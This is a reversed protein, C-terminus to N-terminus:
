KADKNRMFEGLVGNVFGTAEDGEYKSILKVAEAIAIAPTIKENNDIESLALKIAAISLKSVRELKWGRLNDSIVANYKENSSYVGNVIKTIFETAKNGLPEDFVVNSLDHGRIEMEYLTKFAIERVKQTDM